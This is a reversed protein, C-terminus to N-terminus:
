LSRAASDAAAVLRDAEEVRADGALATLNAAVLARAGRAVAAALAAAAAVDAHVRPEVREGAAACLEALDAALRVLALPPEAAAATVQGLAWDRQAPTPPKAASTEVRSDRQEPRATQDAAARAELALRYAEADEDVLQVARERLAEAQAAVGAADAWSAPSLRAAMQVVAAAAALAAALASGAGPVERPAALEELLAPLSLGTLV